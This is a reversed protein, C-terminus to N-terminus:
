IDHSRVSAYFSLTDMDTTLINMSLRVIFFDDDALVTNIPIKYTTYYQATGTDIAVHLKDLYVVLERNQDYSRLSTSISNYSSGVGVEMTSASSTQAGFLRNKEMSTTNKSVYSIYLNTIYENAGSQNEHNMYVNTSTCDGGTWFYSSGSDDVYLKQVVETHGGPLDYSINLAHNKVDIIQNELSTLSSELTDLKTNTDSTNNIITTLRNATTGTNSATTSSSSRINTTDVYINGAATDISGLSTNTSTLKTDISSTNTENTTSTANLDKLEKVVSM